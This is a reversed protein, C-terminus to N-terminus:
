ARVNQSEVLPTGYQDQTPMFNREDKYDGPGYLVRHNKHLTWFFLSVLLTPFLMVFWIFYAQNTESLFPMVVTGSIEAIGAFIAIITLPNRIMPVKEVM